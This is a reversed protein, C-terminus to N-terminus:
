YEIGTHSSPQQLLVGYYSAKDLIFKMDVKWVACHMHAQYVPEKLRRLTYKVHTAIVTGQKVMMTSM